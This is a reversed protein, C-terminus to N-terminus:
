SRRNLINSQYIPFNLLDPSVDKYHVTKCQQQKNIKELNRNITMLEIHVSELLSIITNIQQGTNYDPKQIVRTNEM